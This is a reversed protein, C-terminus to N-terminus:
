LFEAEEFLVGAVTEAVGALTCQRCLPDGDRAEVATWLASVTMPLGCVTWGRIPDGDAAVGPRADPDQRHLATLAYRAPAVYADRRVAEGM